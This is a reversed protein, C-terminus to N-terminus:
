KIPMQSHFTLKRLPLSFSSVPIAATHETVNRRAAAKEPRHNAGHKCSYLCICSLVKVCDRGPTPRRPASKGFCRADADPSFLLHRPANVHADFRVEFCLGENGSITLPNLFSPHEPQTPLHPLPHRLGSTEITTMQMCKQGYELHNLNAHVISIVFPFPANNPLDHSIQLSIDSQIRSVSQQRQKRRAAHM